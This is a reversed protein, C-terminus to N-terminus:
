GNLKTIRELDQKLRSATAKVEEKAEKKPRGRGRSEPKDKWGGELLFKNANYHNKSDENSATTQIELLARGKLKLELETRWREVYPKFWNCEQLQIWHSWGDLYEQSFRWETPDEMELFLRYLSPYGEHDQDKLTYVITDKDRSTEFFLGKLYRIGGETKFKSM